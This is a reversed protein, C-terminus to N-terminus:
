DEEEQRDLWKRAEVDLAEYLGEISVRGRKLIVLLMLLNAAAGPIPRAARSTRPTAWGKITIVPTDLMDSMTETWGHVRGGNLEVGLDRVAQPPLFQPRIGM